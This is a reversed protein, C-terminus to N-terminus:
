LSTMWSWSFAVSLPVTLNDTGWKSFQEILTAMGAVVLIRTPILPEGIIYAQSLLVITTVVGMTITGALSKKQDFIEWSRSITKKGILGALGDGFSMVLIGASVAGAHEPWFLILLVTISLGYGITGYSKRTVSEIAPILRLQNNIILTLTITIAVGIAINRTIGLWWALPIIPGTGIHVIKRSLEAQNPWIKRSLISFILIIALWSVIISLPILYSM